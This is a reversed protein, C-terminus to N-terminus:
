DSKERPNETTESPEFKITLMQEKEKIRRLVKEYLNITNSKTASWQTASKEGAEKMLEPLKEMIHHYNEVLDEKSIKIEMGKKAFNVTFQKLCSLKEKLEEVMKEEKFEGSWFMTVSDKSCEYTMKLQSLRAALIEMMMERSVEITAKVRMLLPLINKQHINKGKMILNENMEMMKQVYPLLHQEKLLNYLRVLRQAKSSEKTSSPELSLRTEILDLVDEATQALVWVIDNRFQSSAKQITRAKKNSTAYVEDLCVLGQQYKQLAMQSLSSYCPLTQSCKRDVKQVFQM